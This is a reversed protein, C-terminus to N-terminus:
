EDAILKQVLKKENVISRKGLWISWLTRAFTQNIIATKEQNQFYTVIAGGPLWRLIIIENKRIERDFYGCFQDVLSQIEDLEERTANKEFGDRFSKQIKQYEVKEVFDMIIQKPKDESLVSKITEKKSGKPTDPMYHAIAYVEKFFRKRVAVGTAHLRYEQGGYRFSVTTPFTKETSPEIITEIATCPITLMFCFVTVVYIFIKLRM